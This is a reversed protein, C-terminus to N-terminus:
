GEGRKRVMDSPDEEQSQGSIETVWTDNWEQRLALLLSYTRDNAVLKDLASALHDKIMQKTIGMTDAIETNSYGNAMHELIQTERQTLPVILVAMAKGKLSVDQFYHLVQQVVGPKTSLMDIVPREGKSVSRISEALHEAPVSKDLFARADARIAEFLQDDNPSETLFVVSVQPCRTALVRGTDLGKLFPLDIDLLVVNPESSEVQALIHPGPACEGVVRIDPYASLARSVRQRYLTQRDIIFVSIREMETDRASSSM